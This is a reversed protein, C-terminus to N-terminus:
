APVRPAGRRQQPLLADWLTLASARAEFRRRLAKQLRPPTPFEPAYWRAGPMLEDLTPRPEDDIDIFCTGAPYDLMRDTFSRLQAGLKAIEADAEMLEALADCYEQPTAM